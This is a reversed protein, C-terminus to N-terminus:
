DDSAPGTVELAVPLASQAWGVLDDSANAYKERLWTRVRADEDSGAVVLRAQADWGHEGIQIRVSPNAILNQVWDSTERGGAMMYVTDRDVAFWIEITHPNGTRRGTTTLYCYEEIADEAPTPAPDNVRLIKADGGTAEGVMAV